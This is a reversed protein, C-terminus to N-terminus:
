TFFSSVVMEVLLPMLMCLVCAYKGAFRNGKLLFTEKLTKSKGKKEYIM